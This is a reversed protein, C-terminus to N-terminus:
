IAQILRREELPISVKRMDGGGGGGNSDAHPILGAAIAGLSAGALHCVPAPDSEPRSRSPSGVVIKGCTVWFLDPPQSTRQPRRAPPTRHGSRCISCMHRM